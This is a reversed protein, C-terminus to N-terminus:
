SHVIEIKEHAVAIECFQIIDGFINTSILNGKGKQICFINRSVVHQLRYKKCHMSYEDYLNYTRRRLCLITVNLLTLNTVNLLTKEIHM